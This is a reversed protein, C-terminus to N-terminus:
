VRNGNGNGVDLKIQIANGHSPARAVMEGVARSLKARARSLDGGGRQKPTRPRRTHKWSTGYGHSKGARIQPLRTYEAKQLNMHVM